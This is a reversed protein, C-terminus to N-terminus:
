VVVVAPQVYKDGVSMDIRLDLLRSGFNVVLLSIHQEVVFAVALEDFSGLQGAATKLCWVNAASNGEGIKIVVAEHVDDDCIISVRWQQQVVAAGITIM